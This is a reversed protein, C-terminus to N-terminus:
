PCEEAKLISTIMSLNRLAKVRRNPIDSIDNQSYAQERKM